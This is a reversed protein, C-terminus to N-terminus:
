EEGVKKLIKEVGKEYLGAVYYTEPSETKRADLIKDLQLLIDNSM